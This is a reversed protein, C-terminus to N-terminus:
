QEIQPLNSRISAGGTYLHDVYVGLRTHLIEM